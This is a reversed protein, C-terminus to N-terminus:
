LGFCVLHFFNTINTDDTGVELTLYHTITEQTISAIVTEEKFFVDEIELCLYFKCQFLAFCFM